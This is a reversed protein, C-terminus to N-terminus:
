RWWKWSACLLYRVVLWGDGVGEVCVREMGQLEGFECLSVLDVTAM